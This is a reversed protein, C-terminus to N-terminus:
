PSAGEELHDAPSGEPQAAGPVPSASERRTSEEEDYVKFAADAVTLGSPKPRVSFRYINTKQISMPEIDALTLGRTALLDIFVPERALIKWLNLTIGHDSERTEHNM